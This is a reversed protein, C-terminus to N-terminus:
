NKCEIELRDFCEKASEESVNNGLLIGTKSDKVKIVYNFETDNYNYFIYDINDNSGSDIVKVNAGSETAKKYYQYNTETLFIGKTLDEDDKSITFPLSSTIDYDDRTDLTIKISDGTEVNYTYSKSSRVGDSSSGCGTLLVLMVSILLMSLIKTFKKM